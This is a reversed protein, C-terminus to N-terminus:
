CVQTALPAGQTAGDAFPLHLKGSRCSEGESIVPRSGNEPIM